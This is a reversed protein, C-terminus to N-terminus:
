HIVWSVAKRLDGVLLGPDSLYARKRIWGRKAMKSFAKNHKDFARIMHDTLEEFRDSEIEVVRRRPDIFYYDKPRTKFFHDIEVEPPSAKALM